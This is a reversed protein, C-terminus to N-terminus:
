KSNDLHRRRWSWPPCRLYYFILNKEALGLGWIVSIVKKINGTMDFWVKRFEYKRKKLVVKKHQSHLLDFLFIRHLKSWFLSAPYAAIWRCPWLSVSLHFQIRTVCRFRFPSRPQRTHLSKVNELLFTCAVLASRNNQRVFSDYQWEHPTTMTM